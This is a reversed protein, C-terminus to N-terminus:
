VLSDMLRRLAEAFMKTTYREVVKAHGSAALRERKQADQWLLAIAHALAKPDNPEVVRLDQDPVFYDTMWARRTAIVAKSAALADLIVTQGSCDSGDPVDTDKSVVVVLRARAYLDRVEALPRDYRVSVHAPVPMDPSINKHGAVVVFPYGVQEAAKFLTGYDRGADRGVSVILDEERSVGARQFFPADVGFPICVLHERPIGLRVFDELQLSSICIIRAYSAWFHKLLFLRIPHAAHRRMLTSSHIAVYLWRTKLRCLRAYHSVIFGLLFNDQAIIFDYRLLRPIFLAARISQPHITMYEVGAFHNMGHLPTDADNEAQVDRIVNDKANTFIFVIRPAKTNM